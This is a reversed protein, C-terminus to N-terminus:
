SETHKVKDLSKDLQELQKLGKQAEKRGKNLKASLLGLAQKIDAMTQEEQGPATKSRPAPHTVLKANNPARQQQALHHGKPAANIGPAAAPLPQRAPQEPTQAVVPKEAVRNHVPPAPHSWWWATASLLLLASAAAAWYLHRQKPANAKTQVPLVLSKEKDLAEFVPLAYRHQTAVAPNRFYAKLIREEELTTQGEFWAELLADIDPSTHM